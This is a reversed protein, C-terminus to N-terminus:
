GLIVWENINVLERIHVSVDACHSAITILFTWVSVRPITPSLCAERVENVDIGHHTMYERDNVQGGEVFDM